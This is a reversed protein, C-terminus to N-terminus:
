PPSASAGAARTSSAGAAQRGDRRRGAGHLEEWWAIGEDQSAQDTVDVVKYRTALLLEPDARCVEALTEMHWLHDRDTHVHGETALLHFPALKLDTLSEVPWCYQRYAAVFRDIDQERLRFRAEVEALKAREEGELRAARRRWRWRRSPAPVGLGGGGRRRVPDAPTGPGQGVVADARLGPVGLDHGAESWLDAATSRRACGTSSRAAGPRRRQLVAARHPHGRHRMGRHDRRVAGPGGGRGPLRRRGCPLGHAEGRLRGAPRGRQPLLRVGRGPAGAPGRGPQDRLAVHHAAPLDAVEPRRRVPEDGGAGGHREGGPDHRQGAAPDPHDAQRARGRRRAGRRPGAPGLPRPGAREPPLFPRAPECYTRAAPVSVFEKEPYRLATLKGGFVCGTDINVTRNLWDPEPVPTHGYVVMAQGRYESAWDFRVPLGFEDTEGTTEGYLAFDRVKGSGRGQMEEKMGAHAVVLKGDDLVYHSVLGDLFDALEDCFPRESRTRCPTSRPWRTPWVTRSRSTRAGSSGAAAEHRPQRPRVPGLREAVMNRVLRVTDLIRPGRDVLDGLFVAKRGEPHVFTRDGLASRRRWGPRAYGSGSRAAGGARRLLRPCRRHHRVARARGAQRELAAGARRGGGRGGRADGARLRAPLGGQQLGRLSRRLQSKQNRIVHPGFDRDRRGANREQCIREPLDLVIAVPLCHYQRALEVLPKRAEPQVNTADIM